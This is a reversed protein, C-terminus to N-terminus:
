HISVFYNSEAEHQLFPLLLTVLVTKVLLYFCSCFMCWRLVSCSLAYLLLSVPKPNEYNMGSFHWSVYQSLLPSGTCLEQRKGKGSSFSSCFWFALMWISLSLFIKLRKFFAICKIENTFHFFHTWCWMKSILKYLRWFYQKMRSSLFKLERRIGLVPVLHCASKQQCSRNRHCINLERQFNLMVVLTPFHLPIEFHYMGRWQCVYYSFPQKM